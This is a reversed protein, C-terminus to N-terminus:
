RSVFLMVAHQFLRDDSAFYIARSTVYLHDCGQDMAEMLYEANVRCKVDVGTVDGDITVRAEGYEGECWVGVGRATVEVNAARLPSESATVISQMLARVHQNPKIIVHTFDGAGAHESFEDFIQALRAHPFEAHYLRGFATASATRVWLDSESCQAHTVTSDSLARLLHDPVTVGGDRVSRVPPSTRVAVLRDGDSAMFAGDRSWYVGHFMPWQERSTVVFSARKLAIAFMPTLEVWTKPITPFEVHDVSTIRGRAPGGSWVLAPGDLYLDILAVGQASVVSLASILRDFPVAFTTGIKWGTDVRAGKVESVVHMSGVDFHVVRNDKAPLFERLFSVASLFDKVSVQQISQPKKKM